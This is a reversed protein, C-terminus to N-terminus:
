QPITRAYFMRHLSSTPTARDTFLIHHNGAPDIELSPQMSEGNGPLVLAPVAFTAGRDTSRAFYTRAGVNNIIATYAIGVLDASAAVCPREYRRSSEITIAPAFSVGANTSRRYLVASSADPKRYYSVHVAGASTVLSAANHGIGQASTTLRQEASWTTGLDSSRRFYIEERCGDDGAWAPPPQRGCDYPTGDPNRNHREDTWAVYLALGNAAIVPTWSTHGDSSSVRKTAQWTVGFDTSSRVYIESSGTTDTGSSVVHVGSGSATVSPFAAHQTSVPTPASFTLGRDTSRALYSTAIGSSSAHWVVYVYPGSAAIKPFSVLAPATSLRRPASWSVGGTDSRQYYINGQVQPLSQDGQMDLWTVHLAGGADIAIAKGFNFRISADLQTPSLAAPGAWSVGVAASDEGLEDDVGCGTSFALLLALAHRM